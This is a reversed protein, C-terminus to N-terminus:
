ATPLFPCVLKTTASLHACFKGVFHGGVGKFQELFDSRPGSSFGNKM